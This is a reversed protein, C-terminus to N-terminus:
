TKKTKKKWKPISFNVTKSLGSIEYVEATGEGKIEAESLSYNISDLNNLNDEIRPNAWTKKAPASGFRCAYVVPDGIIYVEGRVEELHVEGSDIGIGLGLDTPRTKFLSKNEEYFENFMSHILLASNIAKHVHDKGSFFDPFYALIGDGTFKDFVGHNEIIIRQMFNALTSTFTAFDKPKKAILMLHTSKRIDISIISAQHSGSFFNKQFPKNKRLYEFAEPHIRKKYFSLKEVELMEDIKKQLDKNEAVKKDKTENAKKLAAELSEKRQKYEEEFSQRGIFYENTSNSASLITQTSEPFINLIDNSKSFLSESPSASLQISGSSYDNIAWKEAMWDPLKVTQTHIPDTQPLTIGVGESIYVNETNKKSGAMIEGKSHSIHPLGLM